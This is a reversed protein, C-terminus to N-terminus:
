MLWVPLLTENMASSPPALTETAPGSRATVSLVIVVVPVKRLTSLAVSTEWDDLARSVKSGLVTFAAVSTEIVPGPPTDSAPGRMESTPPVNWTEFSKTATEPPLVSVLVEVAGNISSEPLERVTPVVPRSVWRKVTM